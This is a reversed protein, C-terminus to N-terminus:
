MHHDHHDDETTPVDVVFGESKYKAMRAQVERQVIAGHHDEFARLDLLHVFYVCATVGFCWLMLGWPPANMAPAALIVFILLLKSIWFVVKKVRDSPKKLAFYEERIGHHMVRGLFLSLLCVVLAVSMFWVYDTPPTESDGTSGLILKFGVGVLILSMSQIVLMILYGVARLSNRRMAHRDDHDVGTAFVLLALNSVLFFSIIYTAIFNATPEYEVVIISIISEGLMLLLFEFHRHIVWNVKKKFYLFLIAVNNTREFSHTIYIYKSHMPVSRDRGLINLVSIIL